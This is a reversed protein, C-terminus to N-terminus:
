RVDFTTSAEGTMGNVSGSVTVTWTGAPDKAKLRLKYVAQGSADTTVSATTATGTPRRVILTMALGALPTTGEAAAATIAVTQNTGYSPKDTVVRVDPGDTVAYTASAAAAGAQSGARASVTYFGNAVGSPSTVQLATTGTEGPALTLTTAGLASAWGTPVAGELQVSAPACAANDTNKVSLTWGVTAGARAWQTQTPTLSVSPTGPVCTLAGLQVSVTAGTSAAASTTITVGAAPDSFTKGVTLAPDNWSSTEPTMDLVFSTNGSSEAGTHIVVGNALNANGALNSDFGVGRRYEVYYWTKKGTTADVSKLIKLAKPASSVAAYPDVAYTGGSDVTIIPLSSGYNLWGLREKEFANFHAVVGSIGLIDAPDGYDVTTCSSGLTTTGCELAHAHYLGLNHGLEHGVVRLAISGNVLAYTSSGGVQGLGWWTCANKPFGYVFRQYKTLDVGANQAAQRALTRLTAADCVTSNMPITYWGVVSGTFWTQDQSNERYFSNVTTFLMDHAAALTYPEQVKDQFNVLIWLAKQEGFTNPLATTVLQISSEALAGDAGTGETAVDIGLKVGQVRVTDGSLAKPPHGAIHLTLRSSATHLFYRVRSKTKYDEYVIELEGQVTVHEEVLAQVAPPLADRVRAPLAVQLVGAPDTEMLGAVLARRLGAARVLIAADSGPGETLLSTLVDTARQARGRTSSSGAGQALTAEAM